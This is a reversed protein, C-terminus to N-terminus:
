SVNWVSSDVIKWEIMILVQPYSYVQSNRLEVLMGTQKDFYLSIYESITRTPDDSDYRLREPLSVYNTERESDKYTRMETSNIIHADPILPRTLDNAGLGSAYIAWFDASGSIDGITINVMGTKQIETGNLFRWISSFYVKSENVDTITVRYWETVNLQATSEPITANADIKTVFGRIGYTFEDGVDVGAVVTDDPPTQAPPQNVFTAAVAVIVLIGAISIAINLRKTM